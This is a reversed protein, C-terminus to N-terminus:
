VKHPQNHLYINHQAQRYQKPLVAVIQYDGLILLALWLEPKM